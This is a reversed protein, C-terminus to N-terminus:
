AAAGGEGGSSASLWGEVRALRAVWDPEGDEVRLRQLLAEDGADLRTKPARARAADIFWGALASEGTEERRWIDLRRLADLPEALDLPHHGACRPLAPDHAQATEVVWPRVASIKGDEIEVAGLLSYARDDDDMGDEGAEEAADQAMMELIARADAQARALVESAAAQEAAHAAEVARAEAEDAEAALAAREAAVAEAEACLRLLERCAPVDGHALARETLRAVVARALGVPESPDVLQCIVPEGLALELATPEAPIIRGGGPAAMAPRRPRGMPNGSVGPRFRRAPPPSRYGVPPEPDDPLVTAPSM